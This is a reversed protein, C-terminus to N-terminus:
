SYIRKIARTQSSSYLRNLKVCVFLKRRQSITPLSLKKAYPSVEQKAEESPIELAPSSTRLSNGNKGQTQSRTNFHNNENTSDDTSRKLTRLSHIPTGKLMTSYYSDAKSLERGIRIELVNEAKRSNRSQSMNKALSSISERLQRTSKLYEILRETM